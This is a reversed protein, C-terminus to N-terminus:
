QLTTRLNFNLSENLDGIFMDRWFLQNKVYFIVTFYILGFANKKVCKCSYRKLINSYMELYNMYPNLIVHM